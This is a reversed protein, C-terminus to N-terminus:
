HSGTAPLGLLQKVTDYIVLQSTIIMGVHVIRAGTGTFFGGLGGEKYIDAIINRFSKGTTTKYTKTLIMDGPQSTICALVSAIAASLVSIVFKFDVASLEIKALAAYLLGAVVDFSVQKGITYPVQKALMAYIGGFTSLLGEERALKPLGGMLGMGAYAPDTVIKIRCSEMPCLLVAAVAGAIISAGIYAAAQSGRILDKMIPKMIEYVGFKMAGEVGYGVVTPGLGGLLVGVGEEKVVLAAANKLGGNPGSFKSPDAQIRTKIVDIPTTIGHSTAACVGGAVFYRYDLNQLTSCIKTIAAPTAGHAYPQSSTLVTLTLALARTLVKSRSQSKM